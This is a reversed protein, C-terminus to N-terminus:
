LETWVSLDQIFMDLEVIDVFRSNTGLGRASPNLTRVTSFNYSQNVNLIKLLAMPM